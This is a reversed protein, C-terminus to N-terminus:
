DGAYLAVQKRKDPHAEAKEVWVRGVKTMGKIAPIVPPPPSTERGIRDGQDFSLSYFLFDGSANHHKKELLWAM